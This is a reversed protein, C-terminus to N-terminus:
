VFPRPVCNFVIPTVRSSQGGKQKSRGLAVRRGNSLMRREMCSSGDRGCSLQGNLGTDVVSIEDLNTPELM